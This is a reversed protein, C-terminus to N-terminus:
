PLEEVFQNLDNLTKGKEYKIQRLLSIYLDQPLNYDKNAKDLITMRENYEIEKPDNNQLISAISGQVFSFSIVGLLMIFSSFIRELTNTGVIDGYGVTTITTITWYFAVVYINEDENTGYELYYKELWTGKYDDGNSM